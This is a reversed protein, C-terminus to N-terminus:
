APACAGIRYMEIHTIEVVISVLRHMVVTVMVDPWRVDSAIFFVAAVRQVYANVVIRVPQVLMRSLILTVIMEVAVAGLAMSM